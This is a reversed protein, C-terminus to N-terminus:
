RQMVRVLALAHRVAQEPLGARVALEDVRPARGLEVRLARIATVVLALHREGDGGQAVSVEVGRAELAAIMADIEDPTVARAGLAEGLADLTVAGAVARAALAVVLDELEQRLSPM